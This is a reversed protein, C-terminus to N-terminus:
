YDTPPECCGCCPIMACGCDHEVRGPADGCRGCPVPRVQGCVIHLEPSPCDGTTGVCNNCGDIHLPRADEGGLLAGCECRAIPEATRALLEGDRRLSNRRNFIMVEALDNAAATRGARLSGFAEALLLTRHRAWWPTGPEETREFDWQGDDSRAAWTEMRGNRLNPARDTVTVPLPPRRTTRPTM